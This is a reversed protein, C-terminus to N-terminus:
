KTSLINNAMTTQVHKGLEYAQEILNLMANCKQNFENHDVPMGLKEMLKQNEDLNKTTWMIDHVRTLFIKELEKNKM